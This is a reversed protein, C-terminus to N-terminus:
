MRGLGVSDVMGRRVAGQGVLGLWEQLYTYGSGVWALGPVHSKLWATAEVQRAVGALPDEPPLYGDSPPVAAPRQLHPSYYPSGATTCIMSVGCDRAMRLFAAPEELAFGTGTGDGGFAFGYSAGSHPEPVGTGDAGKRFPVSDYISLRMGLLLGPVEARLGEAVAVLFRARNELSGGYKGPRGIASLLEHGLYGHCHKIDVFDFGAKAALVGARVFDDVLFDIEDDTLVRGPQDAHRADLNPHHYAVLPELTDKRNPRAWRGSHTLQMGILLDATNGRAKLHEDVLLQRLAAIEALNTENIVLQNPNARGDHRVAFAEGGWILKAGGAGFRAWRRRTLDTPAGLETGDWGEMPLIAFRNGVRRGQVEFGTALPGSPEVVPDIPLRAGADACAAQFEDLGDLGGLRRFSM